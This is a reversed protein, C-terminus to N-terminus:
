HAGGGIGVLNGDADFVLMAFLDRPGVANPQDNAPARLVFGTAPGAGMVHVEESCEINALFLMDQIRQLDSPEGVERM